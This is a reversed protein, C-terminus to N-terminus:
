DFLFEDDYGEKIEDRSPLLYVLFRYLPSLYRPSAWELFDICYSIGARTMTSVPIDLTEIGVRGIDHKQADRLNRWHDLVVDRDNAHVLLDDFGWTGFPTTNVPARLAGHKKYSTTVWGAWQRATTGRLVIERIKPKNVVHFMKGDTWWCAQMEPKKKRKKQVGTEDVGYAGYQLTYWVNVGVRDSDPAAFLNADMFNSSFLRRRPITDTYAGTVCCIGPLAAEPLPEKQNDTLCAAILDTAHM